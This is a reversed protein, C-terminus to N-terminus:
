SWTCWAPRTSIRNRSPPTTSSTLLKEERVYRGRVRPFTGYYRPEGEFRKYEPNTLSVLMMGEWSGTATYHNYWGPIGDLIEHELRGRLAPDRLREVLAQSGGEHAWPPIITALDNQGARYPYVRVMSEGNGDELLSADSHNHIDVFGPAVVLGTADLVRTATRNELRGIAVIRGQRTGVDGHYAPNGTGDVIRGGRVLLDLEPSAGSAWLPLLGLGMVAPALRLFVNVKAETM